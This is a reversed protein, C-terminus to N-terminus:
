RDYGDNDLDQEFIINSGLVQNKNMNISKNMDIKILGCPRKLIYLNGRTAVMEWGKKGLENLHSKDTLAPIEDYDWKTIYM